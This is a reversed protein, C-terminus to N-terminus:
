KLCSHAKGKEPLVDELLVRKPITIIIASYNNLEEFILPKESSRSPFYATKKNIKPCLILSAAPTSETRFASWKTRLFVLNNIGDLLHYRVADKMMNDLIQSDSIRRYNFPFLIHANGYPMLIATGQNKDLYPYINALIGINYDPIIVSDPGLKQLYGHVEQWDKEKMEYEAMLSDTENFHKEPDYTVWGSLLLIALLIEVGPVYYKQVIVGGFFEIANAIIWGMTPIVFPLVWLGRRTGAPYYYDTATLLMSVLFAIGVLWAFKGLKKDHHVAPLFALFVILPIIEMRPSVYEVAKVPDLVIVALLRIWSSTYFYPRVMVTGHQTWIYFIVTAVVAIFLNALAWTLQKRITDKRLYRTIAEYSAISFVAFIGSFHTLCACLTFLMYTLLASNKNNERWLLYAYFGASLFFIFISYNRVIYSQMIAGHSFAILAACCFGTIDDKLMRGILFYLPIVVMAFLLSLSREFWAVDSVM